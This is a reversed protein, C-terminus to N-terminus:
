KKLLRTKRDRRNSIAKCNPHCFRSRGITRTKYKSGCEECIKTIFKKTVMISTKANEKHWQLGEESAHWLPAVKIGKQQFKKFWEPNNKIRTQMHNSRHKHVIVLKLNSPKNNWPNHDKHHIDYGKPRKGNYFEWVVVHMRYRDYSFYRCGAHLIFKRGNFYQYPKGDEGVQIKFDKM